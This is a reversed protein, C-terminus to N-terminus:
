FSGKTIKIFPESIRPIRKLTVTVSGGVGILHQPLCVFRKLCFLHLISIDCHYWRLLREPSFSVSNPSAVSNLYEMDDREGASESIPYKFLPIEHLSLFVLHSRQSTIVSPPRINQFSEIDQSRGDAYNCRSDLSKLIPM